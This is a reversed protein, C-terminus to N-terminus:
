VLREWRARRWAVLAAAGAISAISVGSAIAGGVLVGGVRRSRARAAGAGPAFPVMIGTNRIGRDLGTATDRLRDALREEFRFSPHIRTAGNAVTVTIRALDADGTGALWGPDLTAAGGLVRDIYLDLQIAGEDDPSQM